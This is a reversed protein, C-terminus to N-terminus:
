IRRVFLLDFAAPAFVVDAMRPIGTGRGSDLDLCVAGNRVKNHELKGGGIMFVRDSIRLTDMLQLNQRLPPFATSCKPVIGRFFGTPRAQERSRTRFFLM